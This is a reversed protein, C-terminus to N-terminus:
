ANHIALPHTREKQVWHILYLEFGHGCNMDHHERYNCAYPHDLSPWKWGKQCTTEDQLAEIELV